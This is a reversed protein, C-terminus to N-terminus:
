ARTVLCTHMDDKDPCFGGYGDMSVLLLQITLIIDIAMAMSQIALSQITLVDFVSDEDKPAGLSVQKNLNYLMLQQKADRFLLHTGRPNLELFDVRAEHNITAVTSNNVLDTVRVTHLDLVYAARKSEPLNGRADQASISVLYYQMHESRCVALIENRGYEIFTMEGGHYLMLVQLARTPACANLQCHYTVALSCRLSDVM